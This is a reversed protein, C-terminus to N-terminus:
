ETMRLVTGFPFVETRAGRPAVLWVTEVTESAPFAGFGDTFYIAAGHDSGARRALREFFPRFDTGGGGRVPPLEVGRTLPYPGHVAQDCWYLDVEVSPHCGIIAELEPLFRGLLAQDISGSTDVAVHLRLTEGELVDLYIEQEIFRRDVGVFDLPTRVLYQWLAARWDVAAEARRPHQEITHVIAREVATTPSGEAGATARVAAHQIVARQFATRWYGDTRPEARRHPDPKTDGTAEAAAGLLLDGTWPDDAGRQPARVREYVEEVSLRKAAEHRGTSGIVAPTVVREPARLDPLDHLLLYVVVDAAVNWRLGERGGARGVHQLACHLVQHLLVYRLAEDSLTTLSRPAVWVDRGDTWALIPRDAGLRFRAHMALTGYFPWSRTLRLKFATVREDLLREMAGADAVADPM